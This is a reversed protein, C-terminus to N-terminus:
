GELVNLYKLFQNYYMTLFTLNFSFPEFTQKVTFTLCIFLNLPFVNVPVLSTINPIGAFNGWNFLFSRAYRIGVVKVLHQNM